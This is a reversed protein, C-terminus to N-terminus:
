SANNPLPTRDEDDPTLDTDAMMPTREAPADQPAAEAEPDGLAAALRPGRWFAPLLLALGLIMAVVPLLSGTPPHWDGALPNLRGLGPMHYAGRQWRVMAYVLLALHAPVMLLCFLKTLTHSQKANLLRREVIFAGLLPMGVLLPLMYRGGIIFGTVNAEKVQLIGPAVVGGLFLIFFRWRDAWTGITLAFLVLAAVPCVWMWYFPLPMFIDFWGAVGVMGQLFTEWSNFYHLAAQGTGFHYRNDPPPVLQGAGSALVWIVAFALSALVGYTWRRVLRHSWLAHLRARSQPILLAGLAFALWLPGLSRLPALLVAGTGTLWILSSKSSGGPKGLLLPIGGCFLAIGATIELGNPNVAGALHALMPTASALLGALMLGYRSWRLLTVFAWALIAASLASSILRSLVLGGWGPWLKLPLGVMAYYIPSYRGASSPADILPGGSIPKQCAASKEPWFGWCRAPHYLGEPVKQYAGAGSNNEGWIVVTPKPLIQGSLVGYARIGHQVEDPPADYPAALSWGTFVLFFGLFVLIWQKRGGSWNLRSTLM